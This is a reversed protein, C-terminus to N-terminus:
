FKEDIQGLLEKAKTKEVLVEPVLDKEAFVGDAENTALVEDLLKKFLEKNQQKVALNEAWLVKTGIYHPALAISKKFHEESKNLDGGAFSPAVAYFAGFYRDPGAHFYTPDLAACREMAAKITDKYKLTTTFGSAKAWKGLNSSYWYIAATGAAGVSSFADKELEGAQVRAKYEPSTAALASQAWDVGKEFTALQKEKDARLHADALFYNARALKSLLEADGPAAAAAKSWAAIAAEVAAKEGRRAWAADGEGILSGGTPSAAPAPATAPKEWANQRTTGCAALVLALVAGLRPASVLSSPM